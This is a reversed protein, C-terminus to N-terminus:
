QRAWQLRQFASRRQSELHDGAGRILANQEVAAARPAHDEARSDFRKRKAGKEAHRVAEAGGGGGGPRIIRRRGRNSKVIPADSVLLLFGYCRLNM